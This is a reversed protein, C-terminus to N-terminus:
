RLMGLVEDHLIGNTLVISGGHVTAEGCADSFRGGAETVICAAAACDWPKDLLNVCVDLKGSALLVYSYADMFGYAYDWARTLGILSRGIPDDAYETVGLVSGMADSLRSTRSVGIRKGDIYAGGGRTAYCTIGMGMAPLHIVGVAPVGDEELAILVSHTPIGRIFPRTGDLPDVIWRRAGAPNNTEGSEEGLFSDNPFKKLIINKIREECQKDIDTVPSLDEKKEINLPTSTSMSKIADLQIRGAELAARIATELDKNKKDPEPM